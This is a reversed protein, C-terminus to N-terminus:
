GVRSYLEDIAMGAQIPGAKGESLAFKKEVARIPLVWPVFLLVLALVDTGPIRMHNNDAWGSLKEM